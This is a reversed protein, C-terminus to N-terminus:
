EEEPPPPRSVVYDRLNMVYPHRFLDRFLEKKLAAAIEPEKAILDHDDTLDTDAKYLHYEVASKRPEYTLKYPWRIAARHKAGRIAALHRRDIVIRGHELTAMGTIPPYELRDKPVAPTTWLWEGTEAFLVRDPPPPVLRGLGDLLPLGEHIAIPQEGGILSLITPYIDLQSVYTSVVQPAAGESFRKRPLRIALPTRLTYMSRLNDGHGVCTPCEYLGEGHDATIVLITDDLHGHADIRQLLKGIAADSEAAAGRYLGDIQGIDEKSTIPTENAVDRGFAISSNSGSVHYQRYYPGNSAYPFHPQSYFVLSFFPTKKEAELWANLDDSLVVPQAFSTLGRLLTTLPDHILSREYQGLSYWVGVQALILPASTLVLQGSIEKLEVDPVSRQQFGLEVRGFFEGSYDSIVSTRYGRAALHAPLGIQTLRGGAKGDPFMTEVGNTLPSLGTLAAVWSPGTRPVVVLTNPFYISERLLRAINPTHADDIKDPRLSDVSIWLVSPKAAPTRRAAAHAALEERTPPKKKTTATADNDEGTNYPKHVYARALKQRMIAGSIFVVVGTVIFARLRNPGRLLSYVYGFIAAAGILPALYRAVALLPYALMSRSLSSLFLGPHRDAVFLFYTVAIIFAAVLHAAWLRRQSPQRRGELRWLLSLGLLVLFFLLVETLALAAMSGLVTVLYPRYHEVVTSAVAEDQVGAYSGQAFLMSWTTPVALALVAAAFSPLVCDRALRVKGRTRISTM